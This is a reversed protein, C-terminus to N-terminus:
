SRGVANTEKNVADKVLQISANIREVIKKLDNISSEMLDHGHEILKKADELRAEAEKLKGQKITMSAQKKQLDKGKGGGFASSIGEGAKEFFNHGDIEAKLDAIEEQLKQLEEQIEQVREYIQDRLRRNTDITSQAQELSGQQDLRTERAVTMLIRHIDVTDGDLSGAAARVSRMLAGYEADVSALIEASDSPSQSARPLRVDHSSGHPGTADPVSDDFRSAGLRETPLVPVLHPSRQIPQSGNM